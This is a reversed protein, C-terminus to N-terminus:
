QRNYFSAGILDFAVALATGRSCRWIQTALATTVAPLGTITGSATATVSGTSQDIRRVVYSGTTSNVAVTLVVDYIDPTVPNVPFSAGLDIKTATTGDHALIQYNSDGTDNTFGFSNVAVTSPDGATIGGTTAVAGAFISAGSVQAADSTAFRYRVKYGWKGAFMTSALRYHAVSNATSTSSALQVRKSSGLFTTADMTRAAATGTANPAAIGGDVPVTTVIFQPNWAAYGYDITLISPDDEITISGSANTIVVGKGATLNAVTFDTGNGIPIQGNSPTVDNTLAVRKRTTGSPTFALRSSGFEFAGNIPTTLDTGSTLQLPAITTTGTALTLKDSFRGTGLVDIKFGADTPTGSTLLVLNGTATFFKFRALGDAGGLMEVFESAGRFRLPGSSRIIRTWVTSYGHAIGGSEYTNDASPIVNGKHKIAVSNTGTYAGLTFTPDIDLAALVDNNAAATLIPTFYTGRAIASAATVSPNFVKAGTITQGTDTTVMNSTLAVELTNPFYIFASGDWVALRKLTTQFQLGQGAVSPYSNNTASENAPIALAQDVRLAKDVVQEDIVSRFPEKETPM